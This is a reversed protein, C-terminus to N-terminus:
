TRLRTSKMDPGNRVGRAEHLTSLGTDIFTLIKRLDFMGRDNEGRASLRLETKRVDDIARETSGNLRSMEGGGMMRSIESVNVLLVDSDKESLISNFDITDSLGKAFDHLRVLSLAIREEKSVSDGPLRMASHVFEHGHKRGLMYIAYARDFVTSGEKFNGKMVDLLLADYIDSMNATVMLEGLMSERILRDNSAAECLAVAIKPSNLRKCRNLEIITGKRLADSESLFDGKIIGAIEDDSYHRMMIRYARIKLDYSGSDMLFDVLGHMGNSNSASAAYRAITIRVVEDPNTAFMRLSMDADMMGRLGLQVAAEIRSQTNADRLATREIHGAYKEFNVKAMAYIGMARIEGNNSDYAHRIIGSDCKKIALLWLASSMIELNDEALGIRYLGEAERRLAAGDLNNTQVLLNLKLSRSYADRPEAQRIRRALEQSQEHGLIQIITSAVYPGICKNIHYANASEPWFETINASVHLPRIGNKILYYSTILRGTRGDGDEYPHLELFKTLFNVSHMLNESPSEFSTGLMEVAREFDEHLTPLPTSLYPGVSTRYRRLGELYKGNSYVGNLLARRVDWIHETRVEGWKIRSFVDHVGNLNLIQLYDPLIGDKSILAGSTILDENRMKHGSNTNSYFVAKVLSSHLMAEADGDFVLMNDIGIERLARAYSTEM